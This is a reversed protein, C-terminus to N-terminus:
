EGHAAKVAVRDIKGNPSLPLADAWRVDRPAMYSPADRRFAARLRTEAEERAFSEAAVAVLRVVAGAEADPVGFAVAAALAGSGLAVEEVETPSVRTGMTKITEDARGVFSLFGEADAVVTDGSWVSIGGHRSAPPAPRFREATRVPDGWYGKTVLPGCHVLEGPEGPACVSGDPRVVLIEAQPIARGISGPMRDALEPPLTTSRFAETLGYMLHLRSAPFRARLARVTPEPMRGGSASLTRLTPVEPWDLAALQMWLPPVAALQTIGHRAVAAVVDRPALYDLLIASAGAHFATTLQSLGFDFSLPLVALVRDDARTGLYSAVSAAGVLLNAHSVMVGKPRGTSGSTYLLAALAEGGPPDPPEPPAAALEPWDREVFLLPPLPRDGMLALRPAHTLLLSAGSDALIHAVQPGKLLPNLPVAIGGARSVAFLAVAMEISKPLWLAVRDGPAIRRCLATAVRAVAADLAAYTLVREREVLAPDGAAGRGLLSDLRAIV